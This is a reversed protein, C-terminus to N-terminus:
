VVSKRDTDEFCQYAYKSGSADYKPLGEFDLQWAASERYKIKTGDTATVETWATDVVGDMVLDSAYETNDQYLSFTLSEPFIVDTTKEEGDEEYTITFHLKGDTGKTAGYPNAETAGEPTGQVNWSKKVRAVTQGTYRNTVTQAESDYSSVFLVTEKNGSEDNLNMTCSTVNGDDDTTVKEIKNSDTSTVDTEFWRYEYERGLMDYKAVNAEATQTFAGATWGSLTVSQGEVAQWSSNNDSAIRRKLTMTVSVDKLQDQFAGAEWTKSTSAKVTDTRVNSITGGNYVCISDSSATVDAGDRQLVKEEWSYDDVEEGYYVAPDYTITGNEDVDGAVRLYGDVADERLFYIYPYGDPDYKSLKGQLDSMYQSLDLAEDEGLAQNTAADVTFEVYKGSADAVQAATTPTGGNASYRWLSYTTAGRGSTDGDDLWVKDADFTTTGTRTLYVTGGNYAASIDSGHNAM